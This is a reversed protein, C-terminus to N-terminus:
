KLEIFEVPLNQRDVTVCHVPNAVAQLCSGSSKMERYKVAIKQKGVMEVSEVAVNYCFNPRQGLFVGLVLKKTFDVVPAPPAPSDNTTHEHWLSTWASADRVTVQRATTIASQQSQLVTEFVLPQASNDTSQQSCGTGILAAMSLFASVMRKFM